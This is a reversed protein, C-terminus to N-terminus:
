RALITPSPRSNRDRGLNVNNGCVTAPITISGDVAMALQSGSAAGTVNASTVNTGDNNNNDGAVKCNGNSGCPSLQDAAKFANSFASPLGDGQTHLRRQGPETEPHLECCRLQRERRHMAGPCHSVQAHRPRSQGPTRCHHRPKSGHEGVHGPCDGRCRLQHGRQVWSPPQTTFSHSAATNPNVTFPGVSGQRTQTAADKVIPDYENANHQCDHSQLSHHQGDGAWFRRLRPRKSGTSCSGTPVPYLPATGNPSNQPGSFVVCKTFGNWGDAGQNAYVDFATMTSDFAVGAKEPIAPNLNTITFSGLPGPNVVFLDSNGVVPDVGTPDTLTLQRNTDTKYATVSITANGNTFEAKDNADYDPSCPCGPGTTAGNLNGTLDPNGNYNDKFNGYVDYATVGSSSASGAVLPGVTAFTFSGLPGPAVTFQSSDAFIDTPDDTVQLNATEAKYGRVTTGTSTGVGDSWSFDYVPNCPFTGGPIVTANDSDCGSPSPSLGSFVAGGPRLEDERQGM